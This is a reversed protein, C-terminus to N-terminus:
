VANRRRRPRTKEIRSNAFLPRKEQVQLPLSFFYSMKQSRKRVIAWKRIRLAKFAKKSRSRRSCIYFIGQRGQLFALLLPNHRSLSGTGSHHFFETRRLSQLRLSLKWLSFQRQISRQWLPIETEPTQQEGDSSNGKDDGFFDKLINSEGDEEAETESGSYYYDMYDKMRQQFESSSFLDRYHYLTYSTLGVTLVLGAASICLGTKARNSMHEKRGRSLLALLIGVAACPISLYFCTSGVLALIGLIIAATEMGSHAPEPDLPEPNPNYDYNYDNM